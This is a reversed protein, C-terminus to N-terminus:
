EPRFAKVAGVGGHGPPRFGGDGRLGTQGGGALPPGTDVHDVAQVFAAVPLQGAYVPAEVFLVPGGRLAGLGLGILIVDHGGPGRRPLVSGPIRAAHLICDRPRRLGALLLLALIPALPAPWRPGRSCLGPRHQAFLSVSVDGGGGLVRLAWVTGPGHPGLVLRQCTLLLFLLQRFFVSGAAQLVLVSLSLRPLRPVSPRLRPVSPRLRQAIADWGVELDDLIGHNAALLLGPGGPGGLLCLLLVCFGAVTHVLPALPIIGALLGWLVLLRGRTNGLGLHGAVVRFDGPFRTFIGCTIAALM